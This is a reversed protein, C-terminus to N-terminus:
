FTDGGTVYHCPRNSYGNKNNNELAVHCQLQEQKSDILFTIPLKCSKWILQSSDVIEEKTAMWNIDGTKSIILELLSCVKTRYVM